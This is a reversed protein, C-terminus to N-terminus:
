DSIEHDCRYIKQMAEEFGESVLPVEELPLLELKPQALSGLYSCVLQARADDALGLFYHVAASLLVGPCGDLRELRILVESELGPGFAEKAKAWLEHRPDNGSDDRSSGFWM